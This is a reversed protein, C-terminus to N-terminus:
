ETSYACRFGVTLSKQSKTQKIRRTSKLIQANNEWSGGRIIKKNDEVELIVEPDIKSENTYLLFDDMVWEFVNGAMDHLKFQSLGENFNGVPATFEFGDACDSEMCNAREANPLANGWPYSETPDKDGKAAYEWQAETPLKGSLWNCYEQADDWSVCTVPHLIYEDPLTGNSWVTDGDICHQPYAHSESIIFQKYMGNTVEFMDIKYGSLTVSHEPKDDNFDTAGNTGMWFTNAEIDVVCNQEKLDIDCGSELNNDCNIFGDNCEIECVRDKCTTELSVNAYNLCSNGCEGCNEPDTDLIFDEDTEGDCDNDAEDCIEVGNETLTCNYNCGTNINNDTNYYGDECTIECLGNKCLSGTVVNQLDDCKNNCLGCNNSDSNVSIECGDSSLDNCDKYGEICDFDCLGGNCSSNEGAHDKLTCNESCEGCNEPDSNVNTECGNVDSSCDKYGPSCNFDCKGNICVSGNIVHDMSDCNMNCEGCHQPNTLIDFGEDIVGDCNNDLGDCIETSKASIKDNLPDCDDKDVVTDGDSDPKEPDTGKSTIEEYNSLGDHDYDDEEFGDKKFETFEALPNESVSSVVVKSSFYMGIALRNGSTLTDYFLVKIYYTGDKEVPIILSYINEENKELPLSDKIVNLDSDLLSASASIDNFKNIHNKIVSPLKISSSFTQSNNDSKNLNCGYTGIFSMIIIFLKIKILM